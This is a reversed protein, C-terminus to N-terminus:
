EIVEDARVLIARSIIVGIAQATKMNLIFEFKTPQFSHVERPV